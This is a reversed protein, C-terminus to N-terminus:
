YLNKIDINGSRDLYIIKIRDFDGKDIVATALTDDDMVYLMRDTAGCYTDINSVHATFANNAYTNSVFRDYYRNIFSDILTIDFSRELSDEGPSLVNNENPDNISASDKDVEYEIKDENINSFDFFGGSLETLAELLADCAVNDESVLSLITKNLNIVKSTSIIDFKNYWYTLIFYNRVKDDDPLLLHTFFTDVDSIFKSSSVLIDTIHNNYIDKVKNLITDKSITNSINSILKTQPLNNDSAVGREEMGPKKVMQMYPTIASYNLLASELQHHDYQYKRINAISTDIYEIVGNLKMNNDTIVSRIDLLLSKTVSVKYRDSSLISLVLAKYLLDLWLDSNAKKAEEIHADLSKSNMVLYPAYQYFIGIPMSTPDNIAETITYEVSQDLDNFIKLLDQSM